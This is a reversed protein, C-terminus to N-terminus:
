NQLMWRIPNGQGAGRKGPQQSITFSVRDPHNLSRLYEL